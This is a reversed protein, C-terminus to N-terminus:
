GLIIANCDEACTKPRGIHIDIDGEQQTCSAAINPTHLVATMRIESGIHSADDRLMKPHTDGLLSIRLTM